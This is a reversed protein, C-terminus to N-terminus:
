KEFYTDAKGSDKFQKYLSPPVGYGEVLKGHPVGAGLFITKTVKPVKGPYDKFKKELKEFIVLVKPQLKKQEFRRLKRDWMLHYLTAFKNYDEFDADHEVFKEKVPAKKEVEAENSKKVEAM